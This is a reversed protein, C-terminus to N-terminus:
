PSSVDVGQMERKRHGHQASALGIASLIKRAFPDVTKRMCEEKRSHSGNPSAEPADIVVNRALQHPIKIPTQNASHADGFGHSARLQINQVHPRGTRWNKPRRKHHFAPWQALGCISSAINASRRRRDPRGFAPSAKFLSISSLTRQKSSGSLSCAANSYARSWSRNVRKKSHFLAFSGLASASSANSRRPLRPKLASASVPTRLAEDKASPM